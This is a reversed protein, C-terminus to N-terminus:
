KEIDLTFLDDLSSSLHLKEAIIRKRNSISHVNTYSSLIAISNNSFGCGVLCLFRLDPESLQGSEEIKSITGNTRFNVIEKICNWFGDNTVIHSFLLERTKDFHIASITKSSNKATSIEKITSILTEFTKNNIDKMQQSQTAFERQLRLLRECDLQLSLIIKEKQRIQQKIRNLLYLISIITLIAVVLWFRFLYAKANAKALQIDALNKNHIAEASKLKTQLSNILLSGSIEHAKLSNFTARQYNGSCSDIVAICSYYDVKDRLQIPEELQKRLLLASDINGLKCLSLIAIYRSSEDDLLDAHIISEIASQKAKDYQGLKYHLQALKALNNYFYYDDNIEKALDQAKYLYLFASDANSNRYLIGIASTCVLQYHGNKCQKFCSLAKKYKVLDTTDIDFESNYLTAMRLNAYGLNFYDTPAATEEALKYQEMAEVPKGLEELTAGKYILSRTLKERDGNSTFRTVAIEITDTSPISDYCKYRAQTLLLAYYARNDSGSLSKYDLARLEALASDPSVDIISDIATLRSDYHAEGCAFAAIALLTSIIYLLIKHM